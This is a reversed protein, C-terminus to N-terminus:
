ENFKIKLYEKLKNQEDIGLDIKIFEIFKSYSKPIKVYDKETTLIKANLDRSKKIIKTIDKKQYIYHDPFIINELIKFNNKELIKKFSYPNGIGSFIIYKKKLNFKKLNKIKYKANFIHIKPNIQKILRVIKKDKKNIYKLFIVDYKKLSDIKERLPGSPILQGNGIWSHTDFCVVKVDYEIDKDQLGDDFIIVKAKKKIAIDIIEQRNNSTLYKTHTKLINAEDSQSTYFKKATFVKKYIKNLINFLEITTPTKGTGGIYINGVCITKIQKTKNKKKNNLFLNSIRVPITLPQLIYSLLGTKKSDWFNPKFKLM